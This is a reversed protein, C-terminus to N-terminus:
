NPTIGAVMVRLMQALDRRFRAPTLESGVFFEIGVVASQILDAARAPTLSHQELATEGNEEADILLQVLAKHFRKQGMTSIDGCLRNNVDLLEAGHETDALLEFFETIKAEFVGRLRAELSGPRAAAAEASDCLREHIRTCLARFLAEKNEFHLYLAARSIGSERAVEAMSTRRYGHRAFCSVAAEIISERRDAM